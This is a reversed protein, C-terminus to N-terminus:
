VKRKFTGLNGEEPKHVEWGDTTVKLLIRATSSLFIVEIGFQLLFTALSSDM